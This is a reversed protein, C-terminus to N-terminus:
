LAILRGAAQLGGRLGAGPTGAPGEHQLRLCERDRPGPRRSPALPLRTADLCVGRGRDPLVKRRAPPRGRERRVQADPRLRPKPTHGLEGYKHVAAAALVQDNDRIAGEAQKLLADPETATVKNLHPDHPYPEGRVAKDSSYDATHYAAVLLGVMTNRDNTVKIMNRWANVADCGHVGRSAGHARGKGQRLVLHNAALSIAEGVAEPSMGEALAAAVADTAREKGSDYILGSLEEIWEDEPKRTGPKRSLLKHHDILKPLLTRIPHEARNRKIRSQEGAVCFRVSQRLMTHAQEKGVIDILEWARHALVFRHINMDDQVIYQLSNYADELSNRTMTAFLGEAKDMSAARMAARLVEGGPSSPDVAMGKVPRLTKKKAGGVQQIRDVNRYLVKLVPLAQQKEPMLRSMELAPVLAMETHFGVYDEGGFTEANALSAAAILEKLGLEESKLKNVLIPQIKGAPTEQMLGVLPKLKGFDLSDSGESAFASSIGLQSALGPGIGAIIMGRSVDSLFERRHYHKM